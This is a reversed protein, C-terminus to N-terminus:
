LNVDELCFWRLHACRGPHRGADELFFLRYLGFTELARLRSPILVHRRSLALGHLRSHLHPKPGGLACYALVTTSEHFINLLRTFAM